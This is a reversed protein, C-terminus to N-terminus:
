HLKLGAGYALRLRAPITKEAAPISNPTAPVVTHASWSRKEIVFRVISITRYDDGSKNRATVDSSVWSVDEPRAIVAASSSAM